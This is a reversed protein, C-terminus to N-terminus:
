NQMGKVIEDLMARANEYDYQDILDLLHQAQPGVSPSRTLDHVSILMEEPVVLHRALISGLAELDAHISELSIEPMVAVTPINRSVSHIQKLITQLSALLAPISETSEDNLEAECRAATRYVNDAGINGASGKLTHVLRTATALDNRALSENLHEHFDKFSSAFVRLIRLFLDRDGSFRVLAEPVNIGAMSLDGLDDLQPHERTSIQAPVALKDSLTPSPAWKLLTNVLEQLDIPKAVHGNMGAAETAKRDGQMAAATM